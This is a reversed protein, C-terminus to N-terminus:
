NDKDGLPPFRVLFCFIISPWLELFLRNCSSLHWKLNFPSFCYVLEFGILILVLAAWSFISNFKEINSLDRKKGFLLFLLMLAPINAVWFGFTFFKMVMTKLIFCHRSFDLITILPVSSSGGYKEPFLFTTNEGGLTAKFLFVIVLVPAAGIIFYFIQSINSIKQKSFVHVLLFAFPVVICFLLGENKTWASLGAAVGSFIILTKSYKIKNAKNWLVICVLLFFSLPIEALQAAGQSVFFPTGLLLIGGLIANNKGVIEALSSVLFVVVLIMFIFSIIIGAEFSAFGIYEWYRAIFGPFFLPYSPHSWKPIELYISKWDVGGFYIFRAHMKWIAWSDWTGHPVIWIKKLFSITASIWLIFYVCMLPLSFSQSFNNNDITLSDDNKARLSLYIATLVLLIVLDVWPIFSRYEPSFYIWLFYVLSSFGIGFGAGLCLKVPSSLRQHWQWSLIIVLLYGSLLSIAISLLGLM